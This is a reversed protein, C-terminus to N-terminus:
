AILNHRLAYADIATDPQDLRLRLALSGTPSTM